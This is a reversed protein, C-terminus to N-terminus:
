KFEMFVDQGLQRYTFALKDHKDTLNVSVNAKQNCCNSKNLKLITATTNVFIVNRKRARLEQEGSSLSTLHEM